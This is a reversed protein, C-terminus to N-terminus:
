LVDHECVNWNGSSIQTLHNRKEVGCVKCALIFRRGNRSAVEKKIYTNDTLKYDKQYVSNKYRM